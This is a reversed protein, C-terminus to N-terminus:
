PLTGVARGEDKLKTANETVKYPTKKYTVIGRFVADVDQKDLGNIFQATASRKRGPIEPRMGPFFTSVFLSLYFYRM